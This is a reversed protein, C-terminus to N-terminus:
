GFHKVHSRIDSDNEKIEITLSIQQIKKCKSVLMFLVKYELSNCKYYKHLAPTVTTNLKKGPTIKFDRPIM